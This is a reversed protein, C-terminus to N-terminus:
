TQNSVHNLGKLSTCFYDPNEPNCISQEFNKICISSIVMPVPVACQTQFKLSQVWGKRWM